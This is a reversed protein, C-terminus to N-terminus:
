ARRRTPVAKSATRRSKAAAVLMLWNGILRVTNTRWAQRPLAGLVVAQYLSLDSEDAIEALRNETARDFYHAPVPPREKMEGQLFRCPHREVQLRPRFGIREQGM